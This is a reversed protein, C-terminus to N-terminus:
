WEVISSCVTFKNDDAIKRFLGRLYEYDPKEAYKLARVYHIYQEFEVPLGACLDEPRTQAKVRGLESM